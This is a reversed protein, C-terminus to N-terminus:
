FNTLNTLIKFLKVPSPRCDSDLIVRAARKQLKLVRNFSHKFVVAPGFWM